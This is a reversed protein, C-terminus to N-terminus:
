LRLSYLGSYQYMYVLQINGSVLTKLGRVSLVCMTLSNSKALIKNM